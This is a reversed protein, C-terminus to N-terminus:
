AVDELALMHGAPLDRALKGGALREFVDPQIGYGPRRFIIPAEALLTGAAADEALFASRRVADRRAREEPTMYRRPEGLAREVTRITRVFTELDTPELSFYHEVSRTTRDHTLTKELLNAGLALAAVDMDHGPTHDSFAVPLGFMKKLTPIMRLNISDLHAPYGSPCNHVIIRDNGEALCVDVAAEVEGISANGTDLQIVAGTRAALRILPFHNVDASAIKISDCGLEGVLEVEDEFGVTAFFALDLTDCHAKVERWEDASLCRRSLIDYLPESVTETAGTERDVLVEYTFLQNRDAVLRDPDLIQFKVADVGAKAAMSAYEKARKLGDHTAGAEATIFCPNGDGISRNGIHITSASM